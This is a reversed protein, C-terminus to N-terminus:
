PTENTRAADPLSAPLLEAPPTVTALALVHRAPESSLVLGRIGNLERVKKFPATPDLDLWGANSLANLVQVPDGYPSVGDPYRVLVRDGIRTLTEGWRRTNSAVDRAMALLLRGAEGQEDLADGAFHASISPGITPQAPPEAPPTTVQPHPESLPSASAGRPVSPPPIAAPAADTTHMVPSSPVPAPRKPTIPYPEEERDGVRAAVVSPPESEFLLHTDAIRLMDLTVPKGDPSDLLTPAVPWYPYSAGDKDGYPIALGRAILLEALVRPDLSVGPTRDRKLRQLIEGVAPKWVVFLGDSTVWVRAGRRNITWTGSALLVHMADFLHQELPVAADDDCHHNRTELDKGRSHEAASTVLQAVPHELDQSTTAAPDMIAQMLAGMIEPEPETLWRSLQPTLVHAAALGAFYEHLGHRQPRWFLFYRKLRQRQAWEILSEAYPDWQMTGRADGVTLDSIPRGIDHLLGAMCVAVHWRPELRKRELPTGDAAFVVGESARAAWYAVELGHRLLGGADCHHDRETTPLLHVFGAYRELVPRILSEFHSRELGLTQHISHVLASQMELVREVSVVPLGKQLPPYHPIEEGLDPAEPAGSDAPVCAIGRPRLRNLLKKLM